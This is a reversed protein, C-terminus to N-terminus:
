RRTQKPDPRAAAPESVPVVQGHKLAQAQVEDLEIVGSSDVPIEQGNGVSKVRAAPTGGKPLYLTQDHEVPAVVKFKPMKTRWDFFRLSVPARRQRVVPHDRRWGIM